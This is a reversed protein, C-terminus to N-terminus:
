DGAPVRCLPPLAPKLSAWPSFFFVSSTLPFYTTSCGTLLAQINSSQLFFVPFPSFFATTCTRRRSALSYASNLATTNLAILFFLAIKSFFYCEGKHPPEFVPLPATWAVTFDSIHEVGSGSFSFSPSSLFVPSLHLFM